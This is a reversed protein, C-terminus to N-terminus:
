AAAGAGHSLMQARVRAVTAYLMQTDDLAM